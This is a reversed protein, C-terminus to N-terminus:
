YKSLVMGRKTVKFKREGGEEELVTCDELQM